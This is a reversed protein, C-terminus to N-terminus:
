VTPIDSLRDSLETQRDTQRDGQRDLRYSMDLRDRDRDRVVRM